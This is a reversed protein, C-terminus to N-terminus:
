SSVSATDAVPLDDLEGPLSDDESEDEEESDSYGDDEDDQKMGAPLKWQNYDGEVWRKSKPLHYPDFPFYAELQLHAEGVKRDMATGRLTAVTTHNANNLRVRKNTELISFIYMFRLHHAIKAFEGVIAPSCVKLPNLRCQVNKQLVEKIGPLWALDRGEALVDDESLDEDGSEPTASGFTLDRWRFCFIYLVAQAVAYYMSYKAKDPKQSVPEYHRRLDELHGCLVSFTERVIATSLHSGRAVFSALYACAHLRVVRNTSLKGAQFAVDLCRRAFIGAHEPLTQSFHFILFQAHRTRRPLIFTAFYTLVQEYAENLGARPGGQILPTYYEFILDLTGDMKAVKLRLERLKQEDEAVTEESESVSEIDSDDSDELETSGIKAGTKLHPGQQLLREEVEEELEEVDQQIQEDISVLQETMLALVSTQFSPEYDAIHLLHKQYQIYSRTTAQDKPFGRMLAPKLMDLAPPIRRLLTEIAFHIRRFMHARPVSTEGPVRGLSAPLRAFHAVLMQMISSIYKAHTAALSTLFRLYIGVFVDDRGLWALQLVATVLKGCQGLSSVKAEIALIYKKLLKGSPADGSEIDHGLLQLLKSYQADDRRDGPALHREIGLRVEEKVLEFSKEDWDDVFRVDVNPSFAVKLKKTQSSLSAEDDTDLYSSDRKLGLTPRQSLPTPPPAMAGAPAALSVM